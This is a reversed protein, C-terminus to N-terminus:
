STGGNKRGSSPEECKGIETTEIPQWRWGEGKPIVHGLGPFPFHFGLVVANEAAGRCFLRRRTTVVQDPSFDVAAYWHPHELHIPHVAADSTYLLQQSGSSIAVVMHGPTHGPAATTHIGPVIETDRDVLSLQRQIPPLNARAFAVLLQKIHDDVNLQALDPGSTWFDWEEKWMVYRANPFAPKGESDANGGIHDPHGHTLIVTDIEDLAIGEARLNPILKGTSPAMGGAGTDLLVRHRGTDIMLCIYPSVWQPWQELQLGHERLAQELNAKPANAFLFTAPDPYAFTGDSVATCEFTGVKFRCIETNM